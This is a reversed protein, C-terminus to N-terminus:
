RLGKIKNFSQLLKTLYSDLKDLLPRIDAILADPRNIDHVIMGQISEMQRKIGNFDRTFVPMIDALDYAEEMENEDMTGQAQRDEVKKTAALALTRAAEMKSTIEDIQGSLFEGERAGYIEDKLFDMVESFYGITRKLAAETPAYETAFALEAAAFQQAKRRAAAAEATPEEQAGAVEERSEQSAKQEEESM